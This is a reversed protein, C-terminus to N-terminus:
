SGGVTTTIEMRLGWVLASRHMAAHAPNIIYQLDPQLSLWTTLPARWTAELVWENPRAVQGQAIQAQRYDAGTGAYILGFGIKDDPRM